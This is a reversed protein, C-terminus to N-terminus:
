TSVMHAVQTALQLFGLRNQRYLSGLDIPESFNQHELALKLTADTTNLVFNAGPKEFYNFPKITLLQNLEENPRGEFESGPLLEEDHYAYAWAHQFDAKGVPWSGGHKDAGLVPRYENPYTSLFNQAASVFQMSIAFRNAPPLKGGRNSLRLEEEIYRYFSLYHHSNLAFVLNNEGVETSYPPYTAGMGVLLSGRNPGGMHFQLTGVPDGKKGSVKDHLTVQLYGGVSSGLHIQALEFFYDTAYRRAFQALFQWSANAIAGDRLSDTPYSFEDRM